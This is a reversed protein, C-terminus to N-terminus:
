PRHIMSKPRPPPIKYRAILRKRLREKYIEFKARMQLLSEDFQLRTEHDKFLIREMTFCTLLMTFLSTAWRRPSEVGSYNLKWNQGGDESNEIVFRDCIALPTAHSGTESLERWKEHLEDLGVFLNEKKCHLFADQFAKAEVTGDLKGLWVLQLAPDSLMRHAHAVYEIADRLISRAEQLCGSFALEISIRMKAHANFFLILPFSRNPDRPPKLDDFERMWIGDLQLYYKWLEPFNQISAFFNSRKARYYERYEAPINEIEFPVLLSSEPAEHQSEASGNSV